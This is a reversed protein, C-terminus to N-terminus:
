PAPAGRPGSTSSSLGLPGREDHLRELAAQMRGEVLDACARVYRVDRAAADGSREFHLPELIEQLIRAPYPLYVPPPGLTLGWPVSLVLPAVKIRAWRALGTLRALWRLDDIVIFVSHAGAAVVPVLPVGARLALRIYGQRGGFVIRRRHRFPRMAELDGGPYVLVKHGAALLRLGNAETARVIGLPALLQQLGPVKLPTEHGLGFPVAEVGFRRHLETLLLIGEPSSVGGNHNGVYLAPGQPIRETGRLEARFYAAVREGFTACLWSLWRPDRSDPSDIDYPGLRPLPPLM